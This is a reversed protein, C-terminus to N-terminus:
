YTARGGTLDFTFGTTFSCGPSVIWAIMAAAEDLTGTRGMPIKATMYDITAQPLAAVMPTRIVAPALANVTVGTTAYDKGMSKVLGILGAKSASYAAMGANGDKGAISAVHLVRGYGRELMGPLVVQSMVLAARLNIKYVRDFDELDVEHAKVNTKGTIAACNVLAQLGGSEREARKLQERIQADDTADATLALAKGGAKSVLAATENTSAEDRDIAVISVGHEALHLASARGIGSGAGLIVTTYPLAPYLKATM